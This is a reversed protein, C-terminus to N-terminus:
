NRGHSSVTDASLADADVEVSLSCGLAEVSVV